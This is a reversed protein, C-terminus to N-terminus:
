SAEALAATTAATGLFARPALSTALGTAVIVGGLFRRRNPHSSEDNRDHTMAKWEQKRTTRPELRKPRGHGAALSSPDSFLLLGNQPLMPRAIGFTLHRHAM